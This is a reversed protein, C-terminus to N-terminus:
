TSFIKEIDLVGFGFQNTEAYKNDLHHVFMAPDLKAYKHFYPLLNRSYFGKPVDFLSVGFNAREAVGGGGWGPYKDLDEFRGYRKYDFTYSNIHELMLDHDYFFMGQYPNSSNIFAFENSKLRVRPSSTLGIPVKLDTSVWAKKNKSYEVRLFSPYFKTGRLAERYEIWRRIGTRTVEIDEEILLYYTYNRSVAERKMIGKHCWTLTWPHFLNPFKAIKTESGTGGRLCNKIADIESPKETNTIVVITKKFDLSAVSEYSQRLYELRHERFHFTICALLTDTNYANNM